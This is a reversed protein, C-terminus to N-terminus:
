IIRDTFPKDYLFRKKTSSADNCIEDLYNKSDNPFDHKLIDPCGSSITATMPRKLLNKNKDSM